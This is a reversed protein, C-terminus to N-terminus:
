ARRVLVRKTVVMAVFWIIVMAVWLLSYGLPQIIGARFLWDIALLVILGGAFAVGLSVLYVRRSFEDARIILLPVVVFLPIWSGIGLIAAVLRANAAENSLLRGAILQGAMMFATAGLWGYFLGTSYRVRSNVETM